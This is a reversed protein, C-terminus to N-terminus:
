VIAEEIRVGRELTQKLPCRNAIDVLRARQEDSLPGVMEIRREIHTVGVAETACHECDREHSRAQRVSVTVAELPWEKRTAYMRLTMATCAAVAMLLYEYPTPGADTGGLVVPEDAVMRHSRAGLEARFSTSGVHSTVWRGGDEGESMMNM